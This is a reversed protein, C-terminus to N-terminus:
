YNSLQDLVHLKMVTNM